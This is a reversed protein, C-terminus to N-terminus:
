VEMGKVYSSGNALAQSVGNFTVSAGAVLSPDDLDNRSSPLPTDGGLGTFMEMYWPEEAKKGLGPTESNGMMKAAILSGDNLFSAMITFSGGYGSGVLELEYGVVEDGDKIEMVSLINSDTSELENGLEYGGSVEYRAEITENLINQAIKPATISNIVGCLGASLACILFLTIGTKAITKM